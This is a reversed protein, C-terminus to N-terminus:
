IKFDPGDWVMCKINIPILYIIESESKEVLPIMFSSKSSPVESYYTAKWVNM